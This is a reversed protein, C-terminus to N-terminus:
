RDNLKERTLVQVPIGQSFDMERHPPLGHNFNMIEMRSAKELTKNNLEVLSQNENTDSTMSDPADVILESRLSSAFPMMYSKEEVMTSSMPVSDCINMLQCLTVSSTSVPAPASSSQLMKSFKSAQKKKRKGGKSRPRKKSGLFLGDDIMDTFTLSEMQEALSELGDVENSLEQLDFDLLDKTSKLQDLGLSDLNLKELASKKPKM